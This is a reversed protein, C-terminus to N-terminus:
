ETPATSDDARCFWVLFPLLALVSLRRRLLIMECSLQGLAEQSLAGSSADFYLHHVDGTTLRLIALTSRGGPDINRRIIMSTAVSCTSPEQCFVGRVSLDAEGAGFRDLM